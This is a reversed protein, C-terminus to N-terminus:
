WELKYVLTSLIVLLICFTYGKMFDTTFVGKKCCIISIITVVILWITCGIM